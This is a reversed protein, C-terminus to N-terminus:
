GIPDRLLASFHQLGNCSGDMSIVAHSLYNEPDNLYGVYDLTWALFQFPEDAETWQINSLPDAAIARFMQENDDVWATRAAFAVKDIGRHNAGAIKLWELAEPTSIKKGEAFELLGKAYDSAQPHLHEPISYIRGRFDCNYPFYLAPYDKFKKATSITRAILESISRNAILKKHWNMKRRKWKELAKPNTEFCPHPTEVAMGCIPCVPPEITEQYPLGALTSHNFFLETLTDLVTTNIRWPTNQVTNVGTYVAEMQKVTTDLRLHCRHEIWRTKVFPLQPIHESYYGGSTYNTWPKPPYVMPMHQPFFECLITNREDIWKLLEPSPKVTKTLTKAGSKVNAVSIYGTAEVICDILFTGVHITLKKDQIIQRRWEAWNDSYDDNAYHVAAIHRHTYSTKHKIVPLIRHMIKQGLATFRAEDEIREGIAAALRTFPRDGSIGDMVVRLAILAAMEPHINKLAKVAIGAKQAKSNACKTVITQAVKSVSQQLITYVPTTESQREKAKAVDVTHWYKTMGQDHAEEELRLQEQYLEENTWERM